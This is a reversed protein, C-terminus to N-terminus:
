CIAPCAMNKAAAPTSRPFQKDTFEKAESIMRIQDLDEKALISEIPNEYMRNQLDGGADDPYWDPLGAHHRAIGYAAHKAAPHNKLSDFALVAGATIHNPRGTRGEM